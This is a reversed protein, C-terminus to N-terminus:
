LPRRLQTENYSPSRYSDFQEYFRNMLDVVENPASM